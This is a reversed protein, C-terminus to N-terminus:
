GFTDARFVFENCGHRGGCTVLDELQFGRESVFRFIEEPKAVEFPWGGIWDVVDYYLTMGRAGKGQYRDLPNKGQLVDLSFHALSFALFYAYNLFWKTVPGVRNYYRKVFTWYGSMLPQKNYIALFLKGGDKVLPLINEVAEWMSGTHHLVGWSYVVDFRGLKALYEPNLVSGSEIIWGDGPFYRRKLEVTCAVSLPDYDFSHVTAGLSRAALSFLGSGSGVDLFTKGSLSEVHLMKCLSCKAQEIREDNLVSLFRYWNAGFAFREGDGGQLAQNSM